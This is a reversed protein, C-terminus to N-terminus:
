DSLTTTLGDDDAFRQSVIRYKGAPLLVPLHENHLITAPRSANLWLFNETEFLEAHNEKVIHRHGSAEGEAIIRDDRKEAEPPIERVQVFLVDGQRYPHNTKM